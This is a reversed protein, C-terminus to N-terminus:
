YLLSAALAQLQALLAIAVLLGATVFLMAFDSTTPPVLAALVAPLPESGVISDVAIKLPIPALLALPTSLLSLFFFGFIHAWYPRAHLLMRRYLTFDTYRAGAM